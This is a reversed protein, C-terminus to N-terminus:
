QPWERQLSVTQTQCLRSDATVGVVYYSFRIGPGIAGQSVDISLNTGINLTEFAGVAAGQENFIRVQYRAILHSSRPPDWYFTVRGNPFGEVPSTARFGSCDLYGV